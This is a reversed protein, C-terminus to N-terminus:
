FHDQSPAISQHLVGACDPGAMHRLPLQARSQMQWANPPMGPPQAGLQAAIQAELLGLREQVEAKSMWDGDSSQKSEPQQRRDPVDARHEVESLEAM